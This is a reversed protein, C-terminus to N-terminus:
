FGLITEISSSRIKFSTPRDNKNLCGAGIQYTFFLSACEFVTSAGNYGLTQVNEFLKKFDM